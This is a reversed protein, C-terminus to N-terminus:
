LTNRETLSFHLGTDGFLYHCFHQHITVSLSLDHKKKIFSLDSEFTTDDSKIYM